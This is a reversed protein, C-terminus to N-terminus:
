QCRLRHPAVRPNVVGARLGSEITQRAEGEHLGAECAARLLAARAADERLEGGGVVRGVLFAARNLRHNRVGVRATRLGALEERLVAEGYRTGDGVFSAPTPIPGAVPIRKPQRLWSPAPALERGRDLWVYRSGGRHVSPPAVVYGGNARLDVGPLDGELGPLRGASNGLSSDACRYFLHVGGGGTLATLTRSIGADILRDLSAFATPLDVDVVAIGSQAGTVLGVNARRWGRWWSRIVVEDTTADYLGRRVLPHKGPSPCDPRGCTCVANIVGHLPFIRWGRAAYFLAAERLATL